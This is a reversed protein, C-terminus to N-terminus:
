QTRMICALAIYRPTITASGTASLAPAVQLGSGVTVLYYGTSNTHAHSPGLGTGASSDGAITGSAVVGMGSAAPANTSLGAGVLYLGQTNPTVYGNYTGGDCLNFGTPMARQSLDWLIIGGLPVGPADAWKLGLAQTSDATLVQGDTGVPIRNNATDYGLLDGKTTLNTVNAVSAWKVGIAQTSDAVLLKGNNAAGGTSLAQLSTGDYAYMDGVTALKNLGGSLLTNNIYSYIGGVATNWETALVIHGASLTGVTNVATAFPASM